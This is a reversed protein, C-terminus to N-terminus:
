IALGEKEVSQWFPSARLKEVEQMGVPIVSLVRGAEFGVEWALDLLTDLVVSDLVPVIVVVDVDSEETAEGTVQSGFLRVEVECGLKQEARERFKRVIREIETAVRKKSM